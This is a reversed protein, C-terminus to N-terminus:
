VPNEDLLTKIKYKRYESILYSQIDNSHNLKYQDFLIHISNNISQYNIDVFYDVQWRNGYDENTVVIVVKEYYRLMDTLVEQLNAHFTYDHRIHGIVFLIYKGEKREVLDILSPLYNTLSYLCIQHTILPAIHLYDNEDCLVIKGMKTYFALLETIMFDRMWGDEYQILVSSAEFINKM